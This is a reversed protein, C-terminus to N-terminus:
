ECTFNAEIRRNRAKGAKTKNTDIPRTEGYGKSTLRGSGIGFTTRIYTEVSVARRESLKQNYANSGVSDTHGSIEGRAKPFDKLFEGVNKLDAEYQPKVDSKDTDFQINLIAPKSCFRAAAAAARPTLAPPLVVTVGASSTATGGAGSCVLNYKTSVTPTISKSGQPPVPGIGPQIDCGSANQSNWSLTVPLGKTVSPASLRIAATPAAPPPTVQAPAPDVAKPAPVVTPAVPLQVAKAVPKTGGFPIYAGLTYELNNKTQSNYSYIIHRVDGRLAISDNLFYKLGLGYDFAARTKKDAGSADFNLGSLGVAMYPVLTNDPIFHYLLEAGYRNMEFRNKARTPETNVYDFLAEVGFNDTVNYGARVGYILNTDLHQKGDFLYGGIVPSISFQEARNAGFVSTTTLIICAALIISIRIKM